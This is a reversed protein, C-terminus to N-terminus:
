KGVEKAAKWLEYGDRDLDTPEKPMPESSCSPLNVLLWIGFTFGVLAALIEKWSVKM